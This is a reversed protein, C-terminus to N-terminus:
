ERRDPADSLQFIKELAKRVEIRRIDFDTDQHIAVDEDAATRCRLLFGVDHIRAKGNGCRSMIIDDGWYEISEPSAFGGDVIRQAYEFYTRVHARTVAYINYLNDVEMEENEHYKFQLAGATGHPVVPNLVLQDFLRALQMPYLLQDDDIVIFYEGKANRALEWAFGCGRRTPQNILLLRPNRLRVCSEIQVEPNHNSVIICEVFECLLLSRILPQINRRRRKNYTPIIVTAKETRPLSVRAGLYGRLEWNWFLIEKALKKVHILSINLLTRM